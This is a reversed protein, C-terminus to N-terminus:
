PEVALADVAHDPRRRHLWPSEFRRAVVGCRLEMQGPRLHVTPWPRGTGNPADGSRSSDIAGLARAASGALGPHRERRPSTTIDPLRAASTASKVAPRTTPTIATAVPLGPDPKVLM